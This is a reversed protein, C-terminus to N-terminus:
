WTDTLIAKTIKYTLFCSVCVAPFALITFCYPHANMWAEM